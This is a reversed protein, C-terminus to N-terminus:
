EEAHCEGDGTHRCYRITFSNTMSFNAVYAAECDAAHQRRSVDTNCWEPPTLARLNLMSELQVCPLPPQEPPM